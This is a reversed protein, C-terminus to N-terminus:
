IVELFGVFSLQNGALRRVAGLIIFVLLLGAFRMLGQITAGIVQGLFYNDAINFPLLSRRRSSAVVRGGSRPRRGNGAAAGAETAQTASVNDKM